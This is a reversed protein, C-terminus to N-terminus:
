VRGTHSRAAVSRLSAPRVRGAHPPNMAAPGPGDQQGEPTGRAALVPPGTVTLRAYPV